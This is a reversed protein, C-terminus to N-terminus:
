LFLKALLGLVTLLVGIIWVWFKNQDYWSNVTKEAAKPSLAHESDLRAFIFDRMRDVEHTVDKKSVSDPYGEGRARQDIDAMRNYIRSCGLQLQSSTEDLPLRRPIDHEICFERTETFARDVIDELFFRIYSGWFVDRCSGAFKIGEYTIFGGDFKAVRFPKGTNLFAWPTVQKEELVRFERELKQKIISYAPSREM